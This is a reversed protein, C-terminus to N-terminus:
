LAICHLDVEQIVVDDLFRLRIIFYVPFGPCLFFFFLFLLLFFFLFLLCIIHLFFRLLVRILFKSIFVLENPLLASVELVEISVLKFRVGLALPVMLLLKYSEIFPKSCCQVVCHRFLDLLLQKLILLTTYEVFLFGFIFFELSFELYLEVAAM